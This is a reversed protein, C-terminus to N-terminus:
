KKVVLGSLKKYLGEWYKKQDKLLKLQDQKLAISANIQHIRYDISGLIDRNISPSETM